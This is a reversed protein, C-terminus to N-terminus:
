HNNNLLEYVLEDGNKLCQEFGLKKLLKISPLNKYDVLAEIKKESNSKIWSIYNQVAEIAYGKGHFDENFHYGILTRTEEEKMYLIGITTKTEMLEVGYEHENSDHTYNEMIERINRNADEASIPEFDDYM